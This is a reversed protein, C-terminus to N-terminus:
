GISEAYVDLHARASREWSFTGARERAVDARAQARNRDELVRIVGAAIAAADTAVLEVTDACVEPLSGARAAVVPTGCAMAELAPLGFGEYLSPVVVCRARCMLGVLDAQAVKGLRDVRPLGAFARDRRPDAPGCLVLRLTPHIAAVTQWAAALAPLNKRTTAGGAHLLFDGVVGLARLREDSIGVPTRYADALGLPIVAVRRVDFATRIENAAFESDCIVTQCRTLARATSTPLGGEDSYRLPATDHVTVVEPGAGPPLRLDFRHVLGRTRYTLGGLLVAGPLPLTDILRMPVRRVRSGAGSRETRETRASRIPAVRIDRFSWDASAVARMARQVESEYLQQGMPNASATTAWTM